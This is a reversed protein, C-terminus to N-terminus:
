SLLNVPVDGVTAYVTVDTVVFSMCIMVVNDSHATLM